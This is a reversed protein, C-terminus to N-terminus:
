DGLLTKETSETTSSLPTTFINGSHGTGLKARARKEAELNPGPPIPKIPEVKPQSFGFINALFSM